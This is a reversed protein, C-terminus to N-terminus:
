QKSVGDPWPVSDLGVRCPEVVDRLYDALDRTVFEDYSWPEGVSLEGAMEDPWVYVQAELEERTDACQVNVLLREYEEAEYYDLTSLERGDLGELVCGDVVSGEGASRLIAPFPEDRVRWRAFGPLTAPRRTPVRRLLGNLVEPCMLTGYVFLRSTVM